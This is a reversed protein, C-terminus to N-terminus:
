YPQVILNQMTRKTWSSQDNIQMIAKLGATLVVPNQGFFDSQDEHSARIFGRGNALGGVRVKQRFDPWPRGNRMESLCRGVAKWKRTGQERLRRRLTQTSVNSFTTNVAIEALPVRTESKATCVLYRIDSDTLKRPSGPCPLNDASEHQDYRSLFSSVTQRPLNLDRAVEAQTSFKCGEVIAGKQFDMLEHRKHESAM